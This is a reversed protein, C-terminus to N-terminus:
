SPLGLKKYTKWWLVPLEGKVAKDYDSKSCPVITQRTYKSESTSPYPVEM